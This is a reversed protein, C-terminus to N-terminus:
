QNTTCNYGRCSEGPTIGAQTCCVRNCGNQEARHNYSNPEKTKEGQKHQQPLNNDFDPLKQTSPLVQQRWPPTHLQAPLVAGATFRLRLHLEAEFSETVERRPM